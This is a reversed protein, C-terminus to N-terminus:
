IVHRTVRSPKGSGPFSGEIVEYLYDFYLANNVHGLPDFDSSRIGITRVQEPSFKMAPTWTDLNMDFSLEPESTYAESTAKPIRLIKKSTLDIFLWMTRASILTEDGCCVEFDRFAKFGKDRTHWTSIRLPDDLRPWRRIDLGIRSLVWANGKEMLVPATDKAIEAHVGVAEQFYNLLVKPYLILDQDVSFFPVTKEITIKM